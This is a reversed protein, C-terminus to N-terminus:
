CTIAIGCLLLEVICTVILRSLFLLKYNIFTDKLISKIQSVISLGGIAFCAGILYINGSFFKNALNIGNTVELISTIVYKIYINNSPILAILSSFIVVTGLINLMITINKSISEQLDFSIDIPKFSTTSVKYLRSFIIGCLLNALWITLLLSFGGFKLILFPNFLLSHCLIKNIDEDSILENEKLISMIKANTPTGALMSILFIYLGYRSTKFIFEYISGLKDTIVAVIKSSLLLDSLIFTPFLLPFLQTSWIQLSELANVIVGERNLVFLILFILYFYTKMDIWDLSIIM